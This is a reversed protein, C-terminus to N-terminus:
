RSEHEHKRPKLIMRPIEDEMLIGISARIAKAFGMLKYLTEGRLKDTANRWFEIDEEDHKLSPGVLREITEAGPKPQREREASDPM